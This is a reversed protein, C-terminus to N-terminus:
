LNPLIKQNSSPNEVTLLHIEHESFGNELLTPILYKVLADFKRISKGAPYGNGDHSLLLRHLLNMKKFKQIRPIFSSYNQENIGDFSIWGGMGAIKLLYEDDPYKDAHVWKWASLPINNQQLLQIQLNAAEINDGTHVSIPLGTELHALLGANFLKIDIESPSGSDFGLKIFGPKIENGNIGIEFEQIWIDAISKEDMSYAFKPIYQDNAAGYFGTNTIIHVNTSDSIIQLLDTRRGFYATTCDYITDVGLEKLTRVYPIVQSLLAQEDYTSADEIPKGFNSFLHEHTLSFGIESILIPGNVTHVIESNKKLNILGSNNLVLVGIALLSLLYFKKM